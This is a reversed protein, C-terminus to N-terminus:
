YGLSVYPPLTGIENAIFDGGSPILQFMCKLKLVATSFPGGVITGGAGSQFQFPAGNPPNVEVMVPTRDVFILQLEFRAEVEVIWEAGHQAVCPGCLGSIYGAPVKNHNINFGDAIALQACSTDNLHSACVRPAITDGSEYPVYWALHPAYKSHQKDWEQAVFGSGASYIRTQNYSVINESGYRAYGSPIAELTYSYLHSRALHYFEVGNTSYEAIGDSDFTYDLSPDPHGSMRCVRVALDPKCESCSELNSITIRALEVEPGVNCCQNGEYSYFTFIYSGPPYQSFDINTNNRADVERDYEGMDHPAWTYISNVASEGSQEGGVCQHWGTLPTVEYHLYPSEV